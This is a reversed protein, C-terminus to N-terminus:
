GDYPQPFVQLAQRRCRSRHEDRLKLERLQAALVDCAAFQYQPFQTLRDPGDSLRHRPDAIGSAAEKHRKLRKQSISGRIMLAESPNGANRKLRDPPPNAAIQHGRFCTHEAM